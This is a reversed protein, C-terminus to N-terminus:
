SLKCYEEWFKAHLEHIFRMMINHPIENPYQKEFEEASRKELGEKNGAAILDACVRCAAFGGTSAYGYKELEFDGIYYSNTVPTASCFDCIPPFRFITIREKIENM